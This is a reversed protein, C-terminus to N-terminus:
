PNKPEDKIAQGEQGDHKRNNEIRGPSAPDVTATLSKQITTLDLPGNFNRDEGPNKSGFNAAIRDQYSVNELVTLADSEATLQYPADYTDGTVSHYVEVFEDMYQDAWSAWRLQDLKTQLIFEEPSM